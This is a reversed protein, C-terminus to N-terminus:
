PRVAWINSHESGVCLYLYHGGRALGSSADVLHSLTNTATHLHLVPTPAPSKQNIVQGFLCWFGDQDTVYFVTRGDASWMPRESWHDLNTLDNFDRLGGDSGISALAIRSHSSDERIGVALTAGDPSYAAQLVNRGQLLLTRSKDKVDLRILARGTSRNEVFLLGTGAPSWALIDGANGALLERKGSAIDLLWIRQGISVAITNGDPSM